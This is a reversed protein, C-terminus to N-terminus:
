PHQRLASRLVQELGSNDRRFSRRSAEIMQEQSIHSWDVSLDNRVALQRIFERQTRGNGERFPHVANIEGLYYAARRAFQDLGAGALFSERQLEGLTQDLCFLIHECLAFLTGSKGINVTRFQGAWNFVDQFIYRHIAQLHAADFGGPMLKRALGTLRRTAMDMEFRSFVEPDRVDRLNKLVNTGPYVYPDM